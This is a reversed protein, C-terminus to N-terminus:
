ANALTYPKRKSLFSDLAMFAFSVLTMLIISQEPSLIYYKKQTFGHIHWTVEPNAIKSMVFITHHCATTEHTAFLCFTVAVSFFFIMSLGLWFEPRVTIKKSKNHPAEAIFLIILVFGAGLMDLLVDNLEWYEVYHPYLIKYQYWEDILMVPVIFVLAAGYRKTLAYALFALGGYALAHIIEVNMELLFIYHILLAMLIAILASIKLKRLSPNKIILWTLVSGAVLAVSSSIITIFLNYSSLGMSNMIKVSLNVMTDHLFLISLTYIILLSITFLPKEHLFRISKAIINERSSSPM